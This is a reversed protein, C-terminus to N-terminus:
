AKEGADADDFPIMSFDHDPEALAVIEELDEKSPLKGPGLEEMKARFADELRRMVALLRGQHAPGYFDMMLNIQEGDAKGSPADYTYVEVLRAYEDNLQALSVPQIRMVHDPWETVLEVNNGGLATVKRRLLPMEHLPVVALAAREGSTQAHTYVKFAATDNPGLRRRAPTPAPATSPKATTIKAPQKAM